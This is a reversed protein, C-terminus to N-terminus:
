IGNIILNHIYERTMVPKKNKPNSEKKKKWEEGANMDHENNDYGDNDFGGFDYDEEEFLSDEELNEDHADAMYEPKTGIVIGDRFAEETEGTTGYLDIFDVGRNYVEQLMLIFAKLPIKQIAMQKRNNKRDGSKMTLIM